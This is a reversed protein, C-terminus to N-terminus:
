IKRIAESPNLQLAKYAPYVAALLATIFCMVAVIIYKEQDLSPYIISSFGYSALGESFMSINIGHKGLFNISLWGLLLGIPCGLLTLYLTELMIMFFIKRKNLGIAMLMGLERVRELVSMLMTNIIGFTLALLIIGTIIYTYMNFSEIVMGLEPSLEKWDEAKGKSVLSASYKKISDLQEENTLLIAIENSETPELGLLNALHHQQVYVNIEDLSINKSKYLGGVRFAASVMDSEIDTFTLVVKSKVKIKLKKALKEGILIENNKGSKFYAGQRVNEDLGIQTTEMSPNIGYIKVGSATTPSTIMGTTIVRASVSAIISNSKLQQLIKNTNTITYKSENEVKFSPHHIQIHSLQKFVTDDINNKYMGWSFALMFVGAWLGIIISCIVVFSRTKNRWINRWAIQLLM